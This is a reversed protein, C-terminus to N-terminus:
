ERSSGTGAGVDAVDLGPKLDLLAMIEKRHKFIERNESELSKTIKQIDPNEFKKKVGPKVSEEQPVAPSVVVCLALTLSMPIVASIEFFRRITGVTM